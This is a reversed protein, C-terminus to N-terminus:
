AVRSRGCGYGLLLWYGCTIRRGDARQVRSWGEFCERHVNKGCQGRCWTADEPTDISEHCIYCDEDLPQRRVERAPQPAHSLRAVAPFRDPERMEPARNVRAEEALQEQRRRVLEDRNRRAQEVIHTQAARAEEAAREQAIRMRNAQERVRRTQEDVRIQAARAEEAVREAEIRRRETEDRVRRAQEAFRGRAAREEQAVREAEVRRRETEDRVRRAQAVRAEEAVREADIRRFRAQERVQRAQEDLRTQAQAQRQQEALRRQREQDVLRAQRERELQHRNVPAPSPPVVHVERQRPPPRAEARQNVPRLPRALAHLPVPQARPAGQQNVRQRQAVVVRPREEQLAFVGQRHNVAVFDLVSEKFKDTTAVIQAEQRRHVGACLTCRVLLDLQRSVINEEVGLAVVDLMSLTDEIQTALARDSKSITNQCPKFQNKKTGKSLGSCTMREGRPHVDLVEEPNWLAAM